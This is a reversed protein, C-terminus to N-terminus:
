AAASRRPRHACVGQLSHVIEKFTPRGTKGPTATAALVLDNMSVIGVLKGNEVVPLRRVRHERMKALADSVSDRPSCVTLGSDGQQVEAVRLDDARRGRMALAVAIDRDTVVGVLRSDRMVPLIGCDGEWMRWAATGAHEDPSCTFPDRTMIEQVRM